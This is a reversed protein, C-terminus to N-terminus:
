RKGGPMESVSPSVVGKVERMNSMLARANPEDALGPIQVFYGRNDAGLEAPYGSARLERTLAQAAGRQDQKFSGAVVRWHGNERAAAGDKAIETEQSWQEIQKQDVKAVEPNGGRPKQYFDGPKDLTVAPHGEAGVSIKGELLCVLDKEDVSKGWLDTGRVGATVNKVKIEIDRGRSRRLADTTFRFAGTLVNLTAKFINKEEVREIVFKANEGLKVTSGETMKLQIRANGGTSLRDDSQLATGPTLPVTRGGRELWVPYQVAEVVAPAANVVTSFLVGALLALSLTRRTM